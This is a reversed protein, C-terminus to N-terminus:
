SQYTDSLCSSISMKPNLHISPLSNPFSHLFSGPFFM